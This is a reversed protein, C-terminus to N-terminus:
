KLKQKNITWTKQLLSPSGYKDKVIRILVEPTDTKMLDLCKILETLITNQTIEISLQTEEKISNPGNFFGETVITAMNGDTTITTRKGHEIM